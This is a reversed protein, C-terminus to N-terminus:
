NYLHWEVQSMKRVEDALMLTLFIEIDSAIPRKLDGFQTLILWSGSALEIPFEAWSHSM